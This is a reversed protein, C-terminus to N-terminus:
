PWASPRRATNRPRWALEEQFEAWLEDEPRRESETIPAPTLFLARDALDARVAVDEIGNVIQPRKINFLHEDEDTYLTRYANGGGTAFCCLLDVDM